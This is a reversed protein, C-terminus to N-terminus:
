GLSGDIVLLARFTALARELPQTIVLELVGREDYYCCCSIEYKELKEDLLRVQVVNDEGGYPDDEKIEVTPMGDLPMRFYRRAPVVPPLFTVERVIQLRISM